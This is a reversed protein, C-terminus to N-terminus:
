ENTTTVYKEEMILVWEHLIGDNPLSLFGIDEELIDGNDWRNFIEEDVARTFYLIESDQPFQINREVRFRMMYATANANRLAELESKVQAYAMKEENIQSQLSAIEAEAAQLATSLADVEESLRENEALIQETLADQASAVFSSETSGTANARFPSSLLIIGLFVAMGISLCLSSTHKSDAADTNNFKTFINM